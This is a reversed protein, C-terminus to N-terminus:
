TIRVKDGVSWGADHKCMAQSNEAISRKLGFREFCLSIDVEAVWVKCHSEWHKDNMPVM